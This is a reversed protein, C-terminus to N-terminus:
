IIKEKLLLLEQKLLCKMELEKEFIEKQSRLMEQKM